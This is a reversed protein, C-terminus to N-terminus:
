VLRGLCDGRSSTTRNKNSEIQPPNTRIAAYNASRDGVSGHVAARYTRQGRTRCEVYGNLDYHEANVYEPGGWPPSLFVGDAKLRSGVELFDACVFEISAETQYVAANHSAMSLRQPDIDLALVSACTRAFQISNGGVGAFPDVLVGCACRRAQRVCVCPWLVLVSPKLM